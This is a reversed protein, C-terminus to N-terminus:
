EKSRSFSHQSYSEYCAKCFSSLNYIRGGVSKPSTFMIDETANISLGLADVVSPYIPFRTHDLLPDAITNLKLKLGLVEVIAKLYRSCLELTPHNFTYFYSWGCESRVLNTVPVDIDIERRKLEELSEDFIRKVRDKPYNLIGEIAKDSSHGKEFAEYTVSSHYDGIPSKLRNGAPGLYECDPHYGRFYINHITLIHEKNTRLNELSLPGYYDSLPQTIVLECGTLRNKASEFEDPKLRWVEIAFVDLGPDCSKLLKCYTDVQCNGIFAIKTM